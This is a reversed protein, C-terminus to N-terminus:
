PAPPSGKQATLWRAVNGQVPQSQLVLLCGSPEDFRVIGRGGSGTWTGKDVAQKLQDMLVQPRRTGGLLTTLPYFELELQAALAKRTTIQIVDADVARYGLGLPTLLQELTVALPQKDVVVFGKVQAPVSAAALAAFDVVLSVQCAEELRPLIRDLPRPPRFNFTVPRALAAQARDLATALSFREGMARSKSPLRRAKRLRELFRVVEAHVADTQNISLTEGLLAADGTGGANKWAAPVVLEEIQQLLATRPGGAPALDSVDYSLRRLLEREAPPSTILVRNNVVAVALKRPGLAAELLDRLTTQSLKASVPDQLKVGLRALADVDITIPLGSLQSAFRVFSLLPLDPLEIAPIEAALHSEVEADTEAEAPPEPEPKAPPEARPTGEPTSPAAEPAHAPPTAPPNAVAMKVPDALPPVPSLKELPSEAGKPGPLPPGLATENIPEHGNITVLAEFVKPDIDKSLFRVSGDAMGAFMGHPQGSGFGDPGNVYPAQTVARVTADGGAAWPGTRGTVGLIAITHSAGDPIEEPRTTRGYGFVGARPDTAPLKAADAGLGAVGVYHTVPYGAASTQPGLMPNTMGALPQRVIAQNEAADWSYEFALQRHWDAHDLYPLLAAIWSLRTEPPVMAHGAVAPPYTGEAKLYGGLAAAQRWHQAEDAAWAAAFWDVLMAGQSELAPKLAAAPPEDWDARLLVVDGVSQSKAGQLAAAAAKLFVPYAGETEAPKSGRPTQAAAQAALGKAADARVADIGARLKEVTTADAASWVLETQLSEGPAIAVGFGDSLDWAGRWAAAMSPWLDLWATPLQWKAARAASLDLRVAVVPDATAVKALRALPGSELEGEKAQALSQLLAERGTVITHEDLVAFPHPWITGPLRRCTTGGLILDTPAGARAIARADQKPELELVFLGPEPWAALDTSAWTLRHVSDLTLGLSIMMPGIAQRWVPDAQAILRDTGPVGNIRSLQMQVVLKTQKPLWRAPLSQKQPLADAAVPAPEVVGPSVGSLTAPRKGIMMWVGVGLTVLVLAGIGAKVM